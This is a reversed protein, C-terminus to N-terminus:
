VARKNQSKLQGTSYEGTGGGPATTMRMASLELGEGNHARCRADELEVADETDHGPHLCHLLPRELALLLAYGLTCGGAAALLWGSGSMACLMVLMGLVVQLAHACAACVGRRVERAKVGFGADSCFSDVKCLM